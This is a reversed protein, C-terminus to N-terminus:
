KGALYAALSLRNKDSDDLDVKINYDRCMKVVQAAPIDKIQNSIQIISQILTTDASFADANKEFIHVNWFSSAKLWDLIKKSYCTYKSINLLQEERKNGFKQKKCFDFKFILSPMGNPLVVRVGHRKDDVIIFNAFPSYLPVPPDLIDDPDLKNFDDMVGNQDVSSAKIAQAMAAGIAESFAKPDFPVMGLSGPAAIIQEGGKEQTVKM